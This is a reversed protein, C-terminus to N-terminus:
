TFKERVLRYLQKYTDWNTLYRIRDLNTSPMYEDCTTYFIPMSYRISAPKECKVCHLITPNHILLSNEPLELKYVKDNFAYEFVFIPDSDLTLVCPVLSGKSQNPDIHYHFQKNNHYRLFYDYQKFTPDNYLFLTEENTIRKVAKTIEGYFSDPKNMDCSVCPLRPVKNRTYTACKALKVLEKFSHSELVNPIITCGTQLLQM